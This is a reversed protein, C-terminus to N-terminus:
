YVGSAPLPAEIVEKIGFHKAKEDPSGGDTSHQAGYQIELLSPPQITIGMGATSSEVNLKTNVPCQSSKGLWKGDLTDM